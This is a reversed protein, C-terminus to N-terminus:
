EYRIGAEGDIGGAHDRQLQVRREDAESSGHQHVGPGRLGHTGVVVVDRLEDAEHYTVSLGFDSLHPVWSADLLVNSSKIDRHIVRPVAYSHLHEIARSVGLLIEIRMKWSATVPSSSSTQSHLHDYLTGNNMYEYVLLREEKQVSWGFLRVIHKHRLPYLIHENRFEREGQWPLGRM